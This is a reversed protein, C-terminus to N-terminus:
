CGDPLSREGLFFTKAYEACVEGCREYAGALAPPVAEETGASLDKQLQFRQATAAATRVVAEHIRREASVYDPSADGASPFTLSSQWDRRLLPLPDEGSSSSSSGRGAPVDIVAQVLSSKRSPRPVQPVAASLSEPFAVAQLFPTRAASLSSPARPAVCGARCSEALALPQQLLKAGAM